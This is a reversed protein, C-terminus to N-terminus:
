TCNNVRSACIDPMHCPVLQSLSTLMVLQMEDVRHTCSDLLLKSVSTTLNSNHFGALHMNMKNPSGAPQPRVTTEAGSFLRNGGRQKGQDLGTIHNPIGITLQYLM